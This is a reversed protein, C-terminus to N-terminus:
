IGCYVTPMQFQVATRAPIESICILVAKHSKLMDDVGSIKNSYTAAM